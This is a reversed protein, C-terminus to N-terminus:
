LPPDHSPCFMVHFENGAYMVDGCFPETDNRAWTFPPATEPVIMGLVAMPVEESGAVPEDVAPTAIPSGPSVICFLADSDLALAPSVIVYV